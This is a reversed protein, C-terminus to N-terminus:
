PLTNFCLRCKPMFTQMSMNYVSAHIHWHAPELCSSKFYDMSGTIWAGQISTAALTVHGHGLKTCLSTSTKYTGRNTSNHKIDRHCTGPGRGPGTTCPIDLNGLSPYCYFGTPYKVLLVKNNNTNNQVM